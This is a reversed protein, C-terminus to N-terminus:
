APKRAWVQQYDVQWDVFDIDSFGRQSLEARMRGASWCKGPMLPENVRLTTLLWGGPRLSRWCEDLVATPDPTFELAELCTVLEFSQDPVPLSAADARLFTVYANFHERAIKETAQVLMKSSRDLAIIHGEFRAHQCLAMPLRGTGTAIDLVQPATNSALRRMIPQALYLHEAVDDHQVINDYRTAFVDYLWIVVGRGLYVGETRILLWWLLFAIIAVGGIAALLGSM